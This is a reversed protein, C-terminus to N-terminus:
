TQEEVRLLQVTTPVLALGNGGAELCEKPSLEGLPENSREGLPMTAPELLCETRHEGVTDSSQQCLFM